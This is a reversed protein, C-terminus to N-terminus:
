WGWVIVSIIKALIITGVIALAIQEERGEKM